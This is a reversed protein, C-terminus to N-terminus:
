PPLALLDTHAVVCRLRGRAILAGRRELWLTIAGARDPAVALAAGAYGEVLRQQLGRLDAGLHWDSATMEVRYGHGAFLEGLITAAQGGAAVGFGKDTRQHRSVLNLMEPDFEDAPELDVQGSITLVILCAAEAAVTRRALRGLWAPSVLDILASATVITPRPTFVLDLEGVLDRREYVANISLDQSGAEILGPDHEILRWRQSPPLQPALYRMNAGTGSGLDVIDLVRHGSAWAGLRRTLELDRSARDAPERLALWDTTFDSM